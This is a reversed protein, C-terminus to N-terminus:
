DRQHDLPDYDKGCTRACTALKGDAVSDLDWSQPIIQQFLSGEIVNKLGIKRACMPCAANCRHTLELHVIRVEDDHYLPSSSIPLKTAPLSM